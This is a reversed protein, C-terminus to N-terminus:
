PLFTQSTVENKLKPRHTSAPRGMQPLVSAGTEPDQHVQSITSERAPLIDSRKKLETGLRPRVARTRKRLLKSKAMALYIM